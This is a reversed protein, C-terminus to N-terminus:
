LNVVRHPKSLHDISLIHDRIGAAGSPLTNEITHWFQHSFLCGAPTIQYLADAAMLVVANTWTIKEEPWITMDPCTHGCWYSGDDFQKESIWSFVIESLNFNGIASLALSLESSEALTVWPEDFVCRVGEGGIVYKKWHKAIRKQADRGSIAGCLIPYFWDMSFRSKTINFLHPKHKIAHGLRAKAQRWATKEYGLCDAIALACRLSMFISSSGTLLATPDVVGEPSKAWYIEGNSAQFGIAFDIAACMTDWMDRLFPTDGSILYYHFLGVALYSSMNTDRTMDEPRGNRYSAYWSGDDLQNHAMWLFAQRAEALHGGVSLGMAAEVHDWPDTKEGESWPIEGNSKQTRLILRAASDIDYTLAQEKGSPEILQEM